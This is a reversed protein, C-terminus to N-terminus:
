ILHQHTLEREVESHAFSCDEGFKCKRSEVFTRCLSFNKDPNDVRSKMSAAPCERVQQMLSEVKTPGEGVTQQSHSAWERFDPLVPAAGRTTEVHKRKRSAKWLELHEKEEEQEEELGDERNRNRIDAKAKAIEAMKERLSMASSSTDRVAESKFPNVVSGRETKDRNYNAGRPMEPSRVRQCCSRLPHLLEM